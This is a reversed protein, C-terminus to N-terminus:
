AQAVIIDNSKTFGGRENPTFVACRAQEYKDYQVRYFVIQSGAYERIQDIYVERGHTANLLAGFQSRMAQAARLRGFGAGDGQGSKPNRHGM